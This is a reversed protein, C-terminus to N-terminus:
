LSELHCIKGGAEFAMNVFDQSTGPWFQVHIKM